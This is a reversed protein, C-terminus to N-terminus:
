PQALGLSVLDPEGFTPSIYGGLVNSGALRIGKEYVIPITVALGQIQQDLDGWLAQQRNPDTEAVATDMEANITPDNLMAYDVNDHGHGTQPDVSIQRGDFNPPLIASGSPWDPIWGALMMDYTNAPDGIGTSYYSNRDLPM